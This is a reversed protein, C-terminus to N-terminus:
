HTIKPLHPRKHLAQTIGQEALPAMIAYGAQNPHVGDKSLNEPLGHREDQMASYYDVYVLGQEAAYTKLWADLAAIKAVPELGKRWPYDYAPLVSALVVSIGHLEALEVMTALNAEIGELSMPGTNGAIDNTGALFVVVKPSLDIVDQRFRVLMQSTTEGGIGRNVYPKGPFSEDLHWGATISDGFFVVRKEGAAPRGIQVDDQCYKSLHSWGYQPPDTKAPAATCDDATLTQANGKIGVWSGVLLLLVLYRTFKLQM